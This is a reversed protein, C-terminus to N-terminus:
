RKVDVSNHFSYPRSALWKILERHFKCLVILNVKLNFQDKRRATKESRQGASSGFAPAKGWFICLLSRQYSYTKGDYNSRRWQHRLSGSWIWEGNSSAGSWRRCHNGQQRRSVQVIRRKCWSSITQCAASEALKCHSTSLCRQQLWIQARPPYTQSWWESFPSQSNKLM